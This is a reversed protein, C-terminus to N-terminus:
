IILVKDTSEHSINKFM